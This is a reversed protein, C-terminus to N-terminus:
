DLLMGAGLTLGASLNAKSGSSLAWSPVALRVPLVEDYLVKSAPLMPGRLLWDILQERRATLGHVLM